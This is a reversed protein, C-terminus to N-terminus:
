VTDGYCGLTVWDCWEGQPLLIQQESQRMKVDLLNIIFLYSHMAKWFILHEGVGKLISPSELIFVVWIKNFHTQWTINYLYQSSHFIRNFNYAWPSRLFWVSTKQFIQKLFSDIFCCLVHSVDDMIKDHHHFSVCTAAALDERKIHQMVYTGYENWYGSMGRYGGM